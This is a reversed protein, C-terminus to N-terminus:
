NNLNVNGNLSSGSGFHCSNEGFHNDVHKAEHMMRNWEDMKKNLMIEEEEYIHKKNIDFRSLVHLIQSCTTIDETRIAELIFNHLDDSTRQPQEGAMGPLPTSFAHPEIQYGMLENNAESKRFCDYIVEWREKYQLLEQCLANRLPSPNQNQEETFLMWLLLSHSLVGDILTTKGFLSSLLLDPRRCGALESKAELAYLWLAEPSSTEWEKTLRRLAPYLAAFLSDELCLSLLQNDTHNM